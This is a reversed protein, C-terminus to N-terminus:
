KRGAIILTVVDGANGVTLTVTQSSVAVGVGDDDSENNAIATIITAFKRTKYTDTTATTTLRVMELGGVLNTDYALVTSM